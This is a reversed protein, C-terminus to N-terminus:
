KQKKNDKLTVVSFGFTTDEGLPLAIPNLIIKYASLYEYNFIDRYTVEIELVPINEFEIFKIRSDKSDNVDKKEQIRFYENYLTLITYFLSESFKFYCKEDIDLIIKEETYGVRTMLTSIDSKIRLFSYGGDKLKYVVKEGTVSEHIDLLERSIRSEVKIDKAFKLGVNKIDLWPKVKLDKSIKIYDKVKFIALYPRFSDERQKKMELITKFSFYAMLCNVLTITVNLGLTILGEKGM